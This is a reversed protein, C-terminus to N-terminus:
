LLGIHVIVTTGPLLEIVTLLTPKQGHSQTHRQTYHITHNKTHTIKQTTNEEIDTVRFTVTVPTLGFINGM